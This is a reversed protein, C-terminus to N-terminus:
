NRKGQAPFIFSYATQWSKRFANSGSIISQIVTFIWFALGAALPAEHEKNKEEMYEFLDM